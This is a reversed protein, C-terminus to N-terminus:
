KPAGGIEWTQPESPAERPLAAPMSHSEPSYRLPAGKSSPRDDVSAQDDDDDEDSADHASAPSDPFRPKPIVGPEGGIVVIAGAPVTTCSTVDARPSPESSAGGLTLAALRVDGVDGELRFDVKLM